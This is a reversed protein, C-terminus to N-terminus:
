LAQILQPFDSAFLLGHSGSKNRIADAIDTLFENMNEYVLISITPDNWVLHSDCWEKTPELGPGFSQTLDVLMIASINVGLTSQRNNYDIRCQYNGETFSNRNFTGSLKVWSKSVNTSLNSLAPPEQVPWYFDFSGNANGPFYVKMSFYYIHNPVLSGSPSSLRTVEEVNENPVVWLCSTCSDGPPLPSNAIYIKGGSIGQTVPFGKGENSLLNNLTITRM